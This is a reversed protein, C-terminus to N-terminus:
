PKPYHVSFNGFTQINYAGGSIPQKEGALLLYITSPQEPCNQKLFRFRGLSLVQRFPANADLYQITALYVAPNSQDHFQVFVYANSIGDTVCIVGNGSHESFDIASLLGYNFERNAQARYASGFYTLCFSLFGALLLTVTLPAIFRFRGELLRIFLAVCLILPIFIINIRNINVPQIIGIIFSSGLWALILDRNLRNPLSKSTLLIAIGALAAPFTVTYFYGYPYITNYILGDDQSFLLKLCIGVNSILTPFINSGFIAAQTEFRARVPLQPITIPGLHVSNMELSNIVIFMAIPAAMFGFCALGYGVEKLKLLKERILIMATFFLFVPIMAYSSGYAYVCLGFLICAPIFWKSNNQVNLLCLYGVLFLFPFINSELAWRSLLIHWPCIALFFTALLALHTDYLRKAIFYVFPMSLIGSLLMPLRVVATKLGFIAILPILLYGYLANQGSGWSIFQVPFSIGNRDVGFHYLSFAEVGISAEDAKLGPPM